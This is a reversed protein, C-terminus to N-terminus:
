YMMALVAQHQDNSRADSACTCPRTTRGSPRRMCMRFSSSATACKMSVRTWSSAIAAIEVLPAKEIDIPDPVVTVGSRPSLPFNSKELTCRKKPFSRVSPPAAPLHM